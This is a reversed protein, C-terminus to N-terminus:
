ILDQELLEIEIDASADVLEAVEAIGNERRPERGRELRTGILPDAEREVPRESRRRHDVVIEVGVDNKRRIQAWELRQQRWRKLRERDAVKRKDDTAHPALQGDPRSRLLVEGLLRDSGVLDRIRARDQVARRDAHRVVDVVRVVLDIEDSKWKIEVRVRSL